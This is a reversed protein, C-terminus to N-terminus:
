RTVDDKSAHLGWDAVWIADAEDHSGPTFGYAMAAQEIMVGKEANGKGTAHKKVTNAAVEFFDVGHAHAVMLCITRMGFFLKASSGGQFRGGIPREIILRNAKSEDLMFNLWRRFEAFRAAEGHKSTFLHQGSKLHRVTDKLRSSVCWGLNNGLDLGLAKM